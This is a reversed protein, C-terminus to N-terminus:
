LVTCKKKAKCEDCEGGEDDQYIVELDELPEPCRVGRRNSDQCGNLTTDKHTPWETYPDSQNADEKASPRQYGPEHIPSVHGCAYKTPRLYCMQLSSSSATPKCHTQLAHCTHLTPTTSPSSFQSTLLALIFVPTIYHSM